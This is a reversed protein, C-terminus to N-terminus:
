RKGGLWRNIKARWAAAIEADPASVSIMHEIDEDRFLIGHVRLLIDQLTVYDRLQRITSSARMRAGDACVLDLAAVWPHRDKYSPDGNARIRVGDLRATVVSKKESATGDM